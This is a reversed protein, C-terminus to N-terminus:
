LVAQLRFQWHLFAPRFHMLIHESHPPLVQLLLSRLSSTTLACGKRTNCARFTDAKNSKLLKESSWIWIWDKVGRGTTPHRGDGYCKFMVIYIYTLINHDHCDDCPLPRFRQIRTHSESCNIHDISVNWRCKMEICRIVMQNIFHSESIGPIAM